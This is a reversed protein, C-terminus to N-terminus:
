PESAQGFITPNDVHVRSSRRVGRESELVIETRRSHDLVRIELANEVIREKLGRQRDIYRCLPLNLAHPTPFNGGRIDCRSFLDDRCCRKSAENYAAARENKPLALDDKCRPSHKMEEARAQDPFPMGAKSNILTLLSIDFVLAANLVIAYTEDRAAIASEMANVANVGNV